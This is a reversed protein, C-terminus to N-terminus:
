PPLDSTYSALEGIGRMGMSVCRETEQIAEDGGCPQVCGFGIIREPFLRMGDLIYDNGAACLGSDLWPFGCVVAKDIRGEDMSRILEEVGVMEAKEDGYIEGFAGDRQAYKVRDRRVDDPFVHTHCDVIM